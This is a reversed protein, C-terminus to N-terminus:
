AGDRDPALGAGQSPAPPPRLLANVEPGFLFLFATIYFWLLLVVVSGLAGYTENFSGLRSVYVGFLYTALLWGATFLVAGPTLWRLPVRQAPAAWYLVATALLALATVVPWRALAFLAAAERGLGLEEGIRVGYVQGVVFLTFASVLLTGGVATLAVALAMRLLYPRTERVGWARNMMKMMTGVGGSAALVAGIIGASLLGADRSQIVDELQQRLVSAADPPLSRGLQDMIEETPNEISVMNALFGGLAALFIFFPFLALFFRFALEAAGGSVDDDKAKQYLRGLFALAGRWDVAM